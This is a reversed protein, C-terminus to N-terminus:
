RPFIKNEYIFDAIVQSMLAIGERSPHIFDTSIYKEDVKGNAGLSAPYVDIVPIGKGEAFKRHNDIYAVREVVAQLRKESSLDLTGKAFNAESLAIPTMFVLVAEPKTTLILQVAKELQENQMALGENLPFSSLPNYGFSEVIILEFGQKLIAPNKADLYTTENTLRDVLSLVNTAGYGYNYTVFENEPYRVILADRLTNANPGFADTMSDGVLVIRYSRNKAIEPPRYPFQYPTPNPTLLQPLKVEKDLLRPVFILAVMGLVFLLLIEVFGKERM